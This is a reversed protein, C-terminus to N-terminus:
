PVSRSHLSRSRRKPEGKCARCVYQQSSRTFVLKRPKRCRPCPQTLWELEWFVRVPFSGVGMVAALHEAMARAKASPGKRLQRAAATLQHEECWDALVAAKEANWTNSLSRALLHEPRRM